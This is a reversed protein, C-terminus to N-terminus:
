LACRSWGEGCSNALPIGQNALPTPWKFDVEFTEERRHVGSFGSTEIETKAEEPVGFHLYYLTGPHSNFKCICIESRLDWFEATGSRNIFAASETSFAALTETICPGASLVAVPDDHMLDWIRVDGATSIARQSTWDVIATKVPGLSKKSGDAKHQLVRECLQCSLNWLRLTGDFSGSLAFGNEWDVSLTSIQDTHGELRWASQVLNDRENEHMEWSYITGKLSGTLACVERYPAESRYAAARTRYQHKDPLGRPQWFVDQVEELTQAKLNASERSIKYWPVEWFLVDQKMSITVARVYPQTHNGWDVASWVM